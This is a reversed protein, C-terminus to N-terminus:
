QINAGYDNIKDIVDNSAGIVHTYSEPIDGVIITEAILFDTSIETEVTYMPIFTVANVTTRMIIRHRTQNIGADTFESIFVASAYGEPETRMEVLPGTGQLFPFGSLTGLSISVSDTRNDALSRNISTVLDSKLRNILPTNSKVSTVTGYQSYTVEILSSYETQNEKGELRENITEEILGSITARATYTCVNVINPRILVFTLIAIGILILSIGVLRKGIAKKLKSRRDYIKM